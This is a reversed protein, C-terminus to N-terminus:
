CMQQSVDMILFDGFVLLVRISIVRHGYFTSL